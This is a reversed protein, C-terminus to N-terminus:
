HLRFGCSVTAVTRQETAMQVEISRFRSGLHRPRATARIPGDAGKLFDVQFSQLLYKASDPMARQAAIIGMMTLAGGHLTGNENLLEPAEDFLTEYESVPNKERELRITRNLGLTKVLSAYHTYDISRNAINLFETLMESDGGPVEVFWGSARAYETGDADTINGVSFGAGEDVTPATARAYLSTGVGPFQRLIDVHLQTTALAGLVKPDTRIASALVHDMVVAAIAPHPDGQADFTSPQLTLVAEVASPTPEGVLSRAGPSHVGVLREVRGLPVIGEQAAYILHNHTM